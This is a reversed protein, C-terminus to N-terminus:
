DWPPDRITCGCGWHHPAPLAVPHSSRAGRKLLKECQGSCVNFQNIVVYFSKLCLFPQLITRGGASPILWPPRKLIHEFSGLSHSNLTHYRVFLGSGGEGGGRLAATQVMLLIFCQIISCSQAPTVLVLANGTNAPYLWQARDTIVALSWPSVRASEFLWYLSHPISNELM